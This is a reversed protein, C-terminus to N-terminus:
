SSPHFKLRFDQDALAPIKDESVPPSFYYGQVQHCGLGRM